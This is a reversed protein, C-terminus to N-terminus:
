SGRVVGTAPIDIMSAATELMDAVFEDETSVSTTTYRLQRERELMSLCLFGSLQMIRTTLESATLAPFMEASLQFAKSQADRDSPDFVLDYYESMRLHINFRASM